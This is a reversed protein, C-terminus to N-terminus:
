VARRFGAGDERHRRGHEAPPHLHRALLLAGHTAPDAPNGFSVTGPGALKSWSTVFPLGSKGDDVVSRVLNGLAYTDTVIFPLIPSRVAYGGVNESVPLESAARVTVRAQRWTAYGNDTATLRAVYTGPRTFTAHTDSSTDDEFDIGAPGYFRPGISPPHAPSRSIPPPM